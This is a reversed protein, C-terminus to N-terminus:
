GSGGGGGGGWVAYAWGAAVGIAVLMVLGRMERRELFGYLMVVAIREYQVQNARNM